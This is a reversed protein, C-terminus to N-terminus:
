EAVEHTLALLNQKRQELSAVGAQATARIEQIKTDLGDIAIQRLKMEDFDLEADVEGIPTWDFHKAKAPSYNSIMMSIGLEGRVFSEIHGNHVYIYLKM